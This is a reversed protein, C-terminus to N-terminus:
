EKIVKLTKSGLDTSVRALYIGSALDSIEYNTEDSFTKVLRGTINYLAVSEISRNSNIQFSNNVPNPFIRTEITKASVDDVGLEGDKEIIVNELRFIPPINAPNDVNTM